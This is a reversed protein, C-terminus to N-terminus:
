DVLQVRRSWIQGAQPNHILGCRRKASEAYSFGLVQITAIALAGPVFWRMSFFHLKKIRSVLGVFIGLGCRIVGMVQRELYGAVM